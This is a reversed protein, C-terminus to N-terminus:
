GAYVAEKHPEAPQLARRLLRARHASLLPFQEALAMAIYIAQPDM